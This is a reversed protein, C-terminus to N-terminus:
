GCGKCFCADLHDDVVGASQM